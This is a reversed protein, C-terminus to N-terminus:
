RGWDQVAEVVEAPPLIPAQEILELWLDAQTGFRERFVRRSGQTVVGDHFECLPLIFWHGCKVKNHAWTAGECHHAVCPWSQCVVCAQQKVWSM